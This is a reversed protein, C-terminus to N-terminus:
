FIWHILWNEILNLLILDEGCTIRIHVWSPILCYFSHWIIFVPSAKIKIRKIKNGQKAATNGPACHSVLVGSSTPRFLALSWSTVEKIELWPPPSPQTM